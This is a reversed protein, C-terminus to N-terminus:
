HTPLLIILLLIALPSLLSLLRAALPSTRKRLLARLFLGGVAFSLTLALSDVSREWATPKDSRATLLILWVSIGIGAAWVISFWGITRQSLVPIRWFLIAIWCALGAGSLLWLAGIELGEAAVFIHATLLCLSLFLLISAVILGRAFASM